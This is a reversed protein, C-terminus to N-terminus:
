GPRVLGERTPERTVLVKDVRFADMDAVEITLPGITVRQGVAPIRGARTMVLGAVTHYARARGAEPDEVGLGAYFDGLSLAGDVLWSGDPRAVIAPEPATGGTVAGTAVFALLNNLTLLGDVGGHEDVVMAVHRGTRQLEELVPLATASDPVLLPERLLPMLDLRGAGTADPPQSALWLDRVQVIGLLQDLGGDCVPFRSFPHQRILATQVDAADNVDLWVIDRRPTMLAAVPEDAFRFVREVMRREAPEFVGASTGAAVMATVDAETVRPEHGRPLRFVVFVVESALELVAVAPAALRSLATMPRAVAVAFREPNSLALRKPVLEGFVVSLWAITVVVIAVAVGHAHPALIPVDQLRLELSGAVAAGGFAGSLVGVLTIGVQVTSLFRTPARSLELAARARRDGRGAHQELRAPSSSVVAIEALALYGNVLLLFLILGAEVPM